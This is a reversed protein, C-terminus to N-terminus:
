KLANNAILDHLYASEDGKLIEEALHNLELEKALIYKAKSNSCWTLLLKINEKTNPSKTREDLKQYRKVVDTILSTSLGMYSQFERLYEKDGRLVVNHLLAQSWLQHNGYEEAVIYAQPFKDHDTIFRSVSSEDLGIIWVGSPIFYIQLAVLQALRTCTQAQHLCDAKCYSKAAESLLQLAKELEEKLDNDTNRKCLQSLKKQVSMELIQAKERHMGFRSALAYFYDGESQSCRTLYDMLALKLNPLNEMKKEFLMTLKENSKLIDFVYMMESYRGLGTLLHVMIPFQDAEELLTVLAQANHLIQSIGDMNCGATFCEHACICLEVVLSFSKDPSKDNLESCEAAFINMLAYGLLSPDQCLKVILQFGENTRLPDYIVGESFANKEEPIMVLDSDILTILSRHIEESLFKAVEADALDHVIILSKALIHEDDVKSVLINKLLNFPEKEMAVSMYGMELVAAITYHVLIQHCIPAAITCKKSLNNMCHIVDKEYASIVKSSTVWLLLSRIIRSTPVESNCNPLSMDIMSLDIEGRALDLCMKIIKLDSCHYGFTTALEFAKPVDKKLLFQGIISGLAEKESDNELHQLNTAASSDSFANHIDFDHVKKVDFIEPLLESNVEAKICWLWMKKNLAEIDYSNVDPNGRKKNEKLIDIISKMLFYKEGYKDSIECQVELFDIITHLKLVKLRLLIDKWFEVRYSLHSWNQSKCSESVEHNIQLMLMDEQPLNAANSFMQAEDYLYSELLKKIAHWCTNVYLPEDEPLFLSRIDIDLDSESLCHVMKYVKTFEPVVVDKSFTKELKTHHFHQLMILREYHTSCAIAAEKLICVSVNELWHLSHLVSPKESHKPYDWLQNQFSEISSNFKKYIMFSRLFGMLDPLPTDPLFLHAGQWLTLMKLNRVALIILNELDDTSIINTINLNVFTTELEKQVKESRYLNTYLWMFFCKELGADPYSAALLALVPNKIEYSTHLLCDWPCDSSNALLLQSFLDKLVFSRLDVDSSATTEESTISASDEDRSSEKKTDAPPSGKIVGIRSYWSKRMDRKQSKLPPINKTEYAVDYLLSSKRHLSHLIHYSICSNAFRSAAKLVQDKPIQFIQSFVLFKLWDNQSACENLYQNGAEVEHLHSLTMVPMWLIIDKFLANLDNNYPNWSNFTISELEAILSAASDKSLYAQQFKRGIEPLSQNFLKDEEVVQSEHLKNAAILCARLPLSDQGLLEIFCICAASIDSSRYNSLAYDTVDRCASRVRSLSLGTELIVEQAIFKLYSYNPRGEMLYYLYTLEKKLGYQESLSQLSFHPLENQSDESKLTNMSQWGFLQSSDFVTSGKLLEYVTVDPHTREEPVKFLFNFLISYSLFKERVLQVSEESCNMLESISESMSQPKFLLIGLALSLPLNILLETSSTNQLRFIYQAVGAIADYAIQPDNHNQSWKYFSKTLNLLPVNCLHCSPWVSFKSFNKAMFSYLFNNLNHKLCYHVLRHCLDHFSLSSKDSSFVSIDNVDCQSQGIRTLFSPFNELEEDCFIGHRALENLLAEAVYITAKEPISNIMEQSLPWKDLSSVSGSNQPHVGLWIDIWNILYSLNGHELLYTWVSSKDIEIGNGEKMFYDLIPSNKLYHPALIRGKIDSDWSSLWKLVIRCYSGSESNDQNFEMYDGVELKDESDTVACITDEKLMRKEDLLLRAHEFSTCPYLKELLSVFLLSHRDSETLLNRNLLEKEMLARIDKESTSKFIDLLKFSIDIGMNVLITLTEEMLGQHLYHLVLDEAINIFESYSSNSGDKCYCSFFSQAMPITNNLISDQIVEEPSLKKWKKWQNLVEPSYNENFNGIDKDDSSAPSDSDPDRLFERMKLLINSFSSLFVNKNEQNFYVDIEKSDIVAIIQIVMAIVVQLLQEAYQCSYNDKLNSSVNELVLNLIDNWLVCEKEIKSIWQKTFSSKWLQHFGEFLTRLFFEVTYLQRNSLGLKLVEIDMHINSWNNLSSLIEVTGSSPYIMLENVLKDQEIDYLLLFIKNENFLLLPFPIEESGSKVFFAPKNFRESMTSRDSDFTHVGVLCESDSYYSFCLKNEIVFLDKLILGETNCTFSLPLLSGSSTSYRRPSNLRKVSPFHKTFATVIGTSYAASTKSSQSSINLPMSYIQGDETYFILLDMTLNVTFNKVAGGNVHKLGYDSFGFEFLKSNNLFSYITLKTGSDNLAFLKEKSLLVKKHSPNDDRLDVISMIHPYTESSPFFSAVVKGDFLFVAEKAEFKLITINSVDALSKAIEQFSQFVTKLNWKALQKKSFQVPPEQDCCFKVEVSHYCIEKQDNVVLLRYDEQSYNDEQWAFKEVNNFTLYHGPRKLLSILLTKEVSHISLLNLDSTAIISDINDGIEPFNKVLLKELAM